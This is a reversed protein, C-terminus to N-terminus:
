RPPWPQPDPDTDGPTFLLGVLLAGLGVLMLLGVVGSITSHGVYDFAGWNAFRVVAILVLATWLLAALVVAAVGRSQRFTTTSM